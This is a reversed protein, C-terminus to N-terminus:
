ESVACRFGIYANTDFPVERSRFSVRLLDEELYWAGGRQVRKIESSPGTPNNVPLDTYYNGEYWDGVWEWVNGAMDLAGYYSAGAPYSGVPATDAYGDDYESSKWGLPCNEDCFNVLSGNFTDGWPYRRHAQMAEDWGAAKEWEAESPLRRGAWACYTKADLWTM